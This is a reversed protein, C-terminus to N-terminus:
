NFIYKDLIARIERSKFELTNFIDCLDVIENFYEDKKMQPLKEKVFQEFYKDFFIHKGDENLFKVFNENSFDDNIAILDNLSVNNHEIYTLVGARVDSSEDNVLIDLGYGQKAVAERVWFSKDNILKDLGYGQKAVAWRVYSSKDNILKDLGYGQEAVAERVAYDEDNVLKDLNYEQEAIAERVSSSKDNILKDLAYGQKAVAKRIYSREDNIEIDLKENSGYENNSPRKGVRNFFAERDEDEGQEFLVKGHDIQKLLNENKCDDISKYGFTEDEYYQLFYKM